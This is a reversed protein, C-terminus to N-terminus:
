SVFVVVAIPVKTPRSSNSSTTTIAPHIHVQQIMLFLSPIVNFLPQLHSLCLYEKLSMTITSVYFLCLAM